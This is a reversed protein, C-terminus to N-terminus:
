KGDQEVLEQAQTALYAEDEPSILVNGHDSIELSALGIGGMSGIVDETGAVRIVVVVAPEGECAAYDDDYGYDWEYTAGKHRIVNM